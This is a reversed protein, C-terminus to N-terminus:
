DKFPFFYPFNVSPVATFAKNLTKQEVALKPRDLYLLVGVAMTLAIVFCSRSISRGYDSFVGYLINAWYATGFKPLSL